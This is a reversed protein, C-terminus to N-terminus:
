MLVWPEPNTEFLFQPTCERSCFKQRRFHGEPLFRGCDLCLHKKRRAMVMLLNRM